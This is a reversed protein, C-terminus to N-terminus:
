SAPVSTMQTIKTARFLLFRMQMAEFSLYVDKVTLFIMFIFTKEIFNYQLEDHFTSFDCIHLIRFPKIHGKLTALIAYITQLPM